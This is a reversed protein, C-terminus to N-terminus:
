KERGRRVEASRRALRAMHARRAHAARRIREEPALKGDPDVEIEFRALFATRAAVTTARPDHRSHQIHAGIRGLAAYDVSM